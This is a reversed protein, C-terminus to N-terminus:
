KSILENYISIYKNAQHSLSFGNLVKNRCDSAMSLYRNKDMLLINHIANALSKANATEALFGTIGNEVMDPIGGTDFGAVPIGCSMAELATQGFAEQLSPIVFVEACNYALSLLHNNNLHGLHLWPINLPRSINGTGFILLFLDNHNGSLQKLAEVLEKFGKRPNDIGPAGFAIVKRKEPINLARRCADKDRPAFENTELGYHVTDIDLNNFLSSKKAERELWHSNARIILPPNFGNLHRQKRTWIRFSLDWKTDSDLQPCEHCFSEFKNCGANYHCGGTFPFMDHLTWVVPKHINGFFHPLDLFGSTWHLHYIDADPLQDLFGPKLASRDDSFIEQGKPRTRYRNFDAEIKTKRYKYFVRNLGGPYRYKVVSEDDSLKDRVFMISEVGQQLLGRHLRGAARAAGGKIDSTSIHLIRM